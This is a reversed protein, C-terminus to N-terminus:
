STTRNETFFTCLFVTGTESSGRIVHRSSISKWFRKNKWRRPTKSFSRGCWNWVVSLIYTLNQMLVQKGSTRECARITRDSKERIKGDSKTTKTWQNKNNLDKCHSPMDHCIITKSMTLEKERLQKRKAKQLLKWIHKWKVRMLKSMVKKKKNNGWWAQNKKSGFLCRSSM